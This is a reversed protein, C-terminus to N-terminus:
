CTAGHLLVFAIWSGAMKDIMSFDESDISKKAWSVVHWTWFINKAFCQEKGHKKEAIENKGQNM